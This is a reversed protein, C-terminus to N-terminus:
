NCIKKKGREAAEPNVMNQAVRGLTQAMIDGFLNIPGRAINAMRESQGDDPYTVRRQPIVTREVGGGTQMYAPDSDVIEDFPNYAM